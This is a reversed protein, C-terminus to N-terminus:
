RRRWLRRLLSARPAPPAPPLDRSAGTEVHDRTLTVVSRRPDGRFVLPIVRSVQEADAGTFMRAEFRPSRSAGRAFQERTVNLLLSGGVSKDVLDPPVLVSEKKAAVRVVLAKVEAMEEDIVVQRLTGVPGDLAYVLGGREYRIASRGSEPELEPEPAPESAPAPAGRGFLYEITAVDQGSRESGERQPELTSVLSRM